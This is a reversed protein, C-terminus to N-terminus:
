KNQSAARRKARRAEVEQWYRSGAVRTKNKARKTHARRDEIWGKAYEAFEEIRERAFDAQCAQIQEHTMKKGTMNRLLFPGFLQPKRPPKRKAEIIHDRGTVITLADTRTAATLGKRVKSEPWQAVLEPAFGWVRCYQDYINMYQGIYIPSPLEVGKRQMVMDRFEAVSYGYCSKAVYMLKGLWLQSMRNLTGAFAIREIMEIFSDPDPVELSKLEELMALENSM